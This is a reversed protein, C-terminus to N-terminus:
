NGEIKEELEKLQRELIPIREERLHQINSMAADVQKRQSDSMRFPGRRGGKEWTDAAQAQFNDAQQTATFLEKRTRELEAQKVILESKWNQRDLIYFMKDVYINMDQPTISLPFNSSLAMTRNPGVAASIQLVIPLDEYKITKTAEPFTIETM